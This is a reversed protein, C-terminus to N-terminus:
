QGVSQLNRQCAGGCLKEKDHCDAMQTEAWRVVDYLDLDTLVYGSEGYARIILKGKGNYWLEVPMGEQLETIPLKAIKMELM